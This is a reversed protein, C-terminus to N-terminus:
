IKMDDGHINFLDEAARKVLEKAGKLQKEVAWLRAEKEDMGEAVQLAANFTENRVYSLEGFGDLSYGLLQALQERDESEFPMAAIANLDIKGAKFLYSIIKNEKFRKTGHSDTVIPQLPHPM